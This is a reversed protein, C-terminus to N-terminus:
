SNLIDNIISDRLESKYFELYAKELRTKNETSNYFSKSTFLVLNRILERFLTNKELITKFVKPDIHDLSYVYSTLNDLINKSLILKETEVLSGNKVLDSYIKSCYTLYENSSTQNHGEQYVRCLENHLEILNDLSIIEM